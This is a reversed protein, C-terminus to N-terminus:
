INKEGHQCDVRVLSTEHGPLVFEKKWSALVKAKYVSDYFAFYDYIMPSPIAPGYLETNTKIKYRNGEMDIFEDTEPFIHSFTNCLDGLIVMTGKQTDVTVLQSGLSHGPAKYVKIGPLIELDGDIMVTDLKQLAPIIGTDYDRRVKQAPIPSLLNLWEDKQFVHKVGPFLACNGAHDNHLHTYLVMEVEEPRVNVKNLAEVVYSCGGVAPYGGWAKGGVIFNENIGNDVLINYGGSQLLFGLYPVDFEQEGLGSGAIIFEGPGRVKGYLLVEITWQTM